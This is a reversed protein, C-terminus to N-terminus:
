YVSCLYEGGIKRKRAEKCTMVGQSTSLIGIGFGNKVYPIKDCGVYRRRGGRSERKINRIVGHGQEDSYKLAIKIIGQKRDRICKYARIYGEQQLLHTIAIKIKSAPATIVEMRAKQGNRIRTLLDAIPDNVNM